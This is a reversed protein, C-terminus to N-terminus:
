SLHIYTFIKNKLLPSQENLLKIFNPIKIGFYDDGKLFNSLENFSNFEVNKIKNAISEANKASKDIIVILTEM